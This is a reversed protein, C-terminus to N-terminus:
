FRRVSALPLFIIASNCYNPVVLFVTALPLVALAAPTDSRVARALDVVWRSM